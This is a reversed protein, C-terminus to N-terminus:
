FLCLHSNAYCISQSTLTHIDYYFVITYVFSVSLAIPPTRYYYANLLVALTTFCLDACCVALTPSPHCLAAHLGKYHVVTCTYVCASITHTFVYM